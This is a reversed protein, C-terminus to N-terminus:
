RNEGKNKKPQKCGPLSRQDHQSVPMSRLGTLPPPQKVVQMARSPNLVTSSQRCSCLARDKLNIQLHVTHKQYFATKSKTKSKSRILFTKGKIKKKEKLRKEKTKGALSM